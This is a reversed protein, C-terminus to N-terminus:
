YNIIQWTTGDYIAETIYRNTKTGISSIIPGNVVEQINLQFPDERNINNIVFRDNTLPPNPLIINRSSGSPLLFQYIPDNSTLQKDELLVERNTNEVVFNSARIAKWNNDSLRILYFLDNPRTIQLSDTALTVGEEASLYLRIGQVLTVMMRFDEPFSANPITILIENNPTIFDLKEKNDEPRITYQTM